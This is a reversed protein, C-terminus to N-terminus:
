QMNRFALASCTVLIKSTYIHTITHHTHTRTSPTRKLTTVFDVLHNISNFQYVRYTHRYTKNRIRFDITCDVVHSPM